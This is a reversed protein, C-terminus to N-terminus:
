GRAGVAGPAIGELIHRDNTKAGALGVEALGMGLLLGALVDSPYHVGVYPRTLAM